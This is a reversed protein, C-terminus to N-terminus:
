VADIKALVVQRSQMGFNAHDKLVEHAILHSGALVNSDATDFHRM